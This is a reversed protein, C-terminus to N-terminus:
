RKKKKEECKEAKPRECKVIKIIREAVKVTNIM